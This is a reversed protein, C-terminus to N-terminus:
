SDKEKLTKVKINLDLLSDFDGMPNVKYNLVRPHVIHIQNEHWLPIIALDKYITKQIDGYLSIRQPADVSSKAASLKKDVDANSYFGRNRGPPFEDSHFALNYLDPDVVGVWKMLAIDFNGAKIDKYFTGWEYSHLRTPIGKSRLKQSIIKGTERAQRSNSSKLTILPKKFESSHPSLDESKVDIPFYPHDPSILTFAKTVHNEFRNEVIDDVGISSYISKRFDLNKLAENRHNILLYSTSLSTAEIVNFKSNKFSSVKEFPISNPAIDIEGKYVKLFRAFDDKLYKFELDYKQVRPYHPNPTLISKAPSDMKMIFAGSGIKEENMIKLVPLDATIFKVSPENLSFTLILDEGELSCKPNKIVKFVSSFPSKSDQFRKISNILSECKIRSGDSFKSDKKIKFLYDKGSVSWDHALDASPNLDPGIKVLSQFLLSSMRMGTADTSVVPDLSSPASGLAVTILSESRNDSNKSCGSFIFFLHLLLLLRTLIRLIFLKKIKAMKNVKHEGESATM